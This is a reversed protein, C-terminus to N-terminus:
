TRQTVLYRFANQSFCLGKEIVVALMRGCYWQFPFVPFSDIIRLCMSPRSLCLTDLLLFRLVFARPLKMVLSSGAPQWNLQRFQAWVTQCPSWGLVKAGNETHSWTSLYSFYNQLIYSDRTVKM